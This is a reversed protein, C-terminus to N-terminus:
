SSRYQPHNLCSNAGETIKKEIKHVLFFADELTNNSVGPGLLLKPRMVDGERELGRWNVRHKCACSMPLWAWHAIHQFIGPYGCPHYANDQNLEAGAAMTRGNPDRRLDKAQLLCVGLSDNYSLIRAVMSFLM